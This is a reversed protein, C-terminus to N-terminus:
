DRGAIGPVPSEHPPVAHSLREVRTAIFMATLQVINKAGFRQKMRELRHEVTRHSFDLAAAIEKATAGEILLQMIAEDAIDLGAESAFANLLFQAYTCSIVWAPRGLTKQPLMVRDYGVNIGFFKAKVFEIKPQQTEIAERVQSIVARELYARDKVKGLPGDPILKKLNLVHSIFGYNRVAEIDWALPDEGNIWFITLRTKITLGELADRYVNGPTAPSEADTRLWADMLQRSTVAFSTNKKM